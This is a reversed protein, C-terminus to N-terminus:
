ACWIAVIRCHFEPSYMRSGFNLEREGRETLATGTRVQLPHGPVSTRSYIAKLPELIETGGLDADMSKVRKLAQEMTDQTYKVSERLFAGASLSVTLQCQGPDCGANFNVGSYIEEGSSGCALTLEVTVGKVIYDKRYLIKKQVRQLRELFKRFSPSLPRDLDM